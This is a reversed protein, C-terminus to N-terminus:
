STPSARPDIMINAPKLDRHVIGQEHAHHVAGVVKELRAIMDRVKFSRALHTTLPDGEIYDMALYHVGAEQGADHISVVNPHRLRAEAQAERKFRDLVEASSVETERLIKLAFVTNLDKHLAKYVIGMGGRGLEEQITYRGFHSESEGTRPVQVKATGGARPEEPEAVPIPV